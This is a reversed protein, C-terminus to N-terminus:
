HKNQSIFCMFKLKINNKIFKFINVEMIKRILYKWISIELISTFYRLIKNKIAILYKNYNVKVKVV